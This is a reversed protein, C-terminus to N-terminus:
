GKPPTEGFNAEYTIQAYKDWESSFQCVGGISQM